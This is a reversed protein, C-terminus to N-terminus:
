PDFCGAALGLIFPVMWDDVGMPYRRQPAGRRCVNISKGDLANPAGRSMEFGWVSLGQRRIAKADRNLQQLLDGNM